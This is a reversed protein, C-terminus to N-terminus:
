GPGLRTDSPRGGAAVRAIEDDPDMTNLWADIRRILRKGPTASGVARAATIVEPDVRGEKRSASIM